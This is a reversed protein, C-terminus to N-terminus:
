ELMYGAHQCKMQLVGVAAFVMGNSLWDHQEIQCVFLSVSM